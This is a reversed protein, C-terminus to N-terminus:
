KIRWSDFFCNFISSCGSLFIKSFRNFFNSSLPYHFWEASEFIIESALSTFKSRDELSNERLTCHFWEPPYSFIRRLLGVCIESLTSRVMYAFLNPIFVIVFLPPSFAFLCVICVSLSLIIELFFCTPLWVFLCLEVSIYLPSSCRLPNWKSCCKEPCKLLHLWTPFLKVVSIQQERSATSLPALSAKQFENQFLKSARKM